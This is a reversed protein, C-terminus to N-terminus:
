HALHLSRLLLLVYFGIAALTSGGVVMAISKWGLSNILESQGHCSIVFTAAADGKAITLSPARSNPPAALNSPASRPSSQDRQGNAAASTVVPALSSAADLQKYKTPSVADTATLPLADAVSNWLDPKVLGARTLAAAITSQQSMHRALGPMPGSSLRVVEPHSASASAAPSRTQVDPSHEAASTAVNVDMDAENMGSVDTGSVGMGPNVVVTGAIFVPTEPALSFEEVRTPCNPNLGHRDLFTFVDESVKWETLSLTQFGLEQRLNRHLDLDARAPDVPMRGTSDEIFFPVHDTDEAVKKWQKNWGNGTRQWVLTRYAFCSRGTIPAALTRAGMAMGSLAALGPSAGAITSEPIRELARKRAFFLLGRLLFFIGAGTTFLAMFVIRTFSFM